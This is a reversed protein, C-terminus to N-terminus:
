RTLIENNDKKEPIFFNIEESLRQATEQTDCIIIRNCGSSNKKLTTATKIWYALMLSDASGTPIPFSTKQGVNPEKSNHIKAIDLEHLM